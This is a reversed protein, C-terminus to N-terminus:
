GSPFPMYFLDIHDQERYYVIKKVVSKLATNKESNTFSDSILIDYLNKVQASQNNGAIRSGGTRCSLQKRDIGTIPVSQSSGASTEGINCAQVAAELLQREECIKQKNLCYEEKTDIGDLYAERARQEKTSLKKLKKEIIVAQNSVNDPKFPAMEYSVTQYESIEKIANLVAPVILDESVYSNHVCKGKLYGYCQFYVTDELTKRRRVCSSLSRGCEPCKLLGSLWHRATESPRVGKARYESQFREQARHFLEESIIPPHNGNQMIWEEPSRIENTSSRRRNWRISGIYFPNKLIYELARKEFPNGQSTKFGSGNLFKAIAFLSLHENVYKEFILRIVAAEEPVIEPVANHYPIRYGLPPRCQCGGRLAKETMGRRVDGSLRISYFEDMWEIIREILSGFPGDVLPESISVVEVRCKNRLMSKYVISEEQNRAFRSYKWVLIVDFPHEPSKAAAIMRQFMPRKGAKRGSVGNEQYIHHEPVSMGHASAYDLLLRRQSDPSLEEQDHTSVRIYLAAAKKGDQNTNNEM